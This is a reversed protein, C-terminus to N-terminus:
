PQAVVHHPLPTGDPIPDGTLTSLRYGAGTLIARAQEALDPSHLEILWAPRADRLTETAGLLARVEAGEVDMKILRPRGHDRVIADLTTVTVDFTQGAAEGAEALHGTSDGPVYVAFKATGPADAVAVQLVVWNTLANLEGQARIFACNLADPDVCVVKGAAGVRRAGVLSFFGAHAGLDLFTDGPSLLRAIAAQVGLEFQGVWFGNVYRHSRKWLMGQAYGSRIPVVSGEPYRSAAWRLLRSVGPVRSLSTILSAKNM